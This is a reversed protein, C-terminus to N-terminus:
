AVEEKVLAAVHVWASSIALCCLTSTIACALTSAFDYQVSRWGERWPWAPAGLLSRSSRHGAQRPRLGPLLAAAPRGSSLGDGRQEEAPEQKHCCQCCCLCPMACLLLILVQIVLTLQTNAAQVRHPWFAMGARCAHLTCRHPAQRCAARLVPFLMCETLLYETHRLASDSASGAATLCEM